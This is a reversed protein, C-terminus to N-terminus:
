SGSTISTIEQNVIIANLTNSPLAVSGTNYGWM